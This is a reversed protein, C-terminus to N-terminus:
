SLAAKLEFKGRLYCKLLLLPVCLCNETWVETKEGQFQLYYYWGGLTPTLVSLSIRCIEPPAISIIM